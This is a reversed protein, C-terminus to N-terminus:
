RPPRDLLQSLDHWETETTQRGCQECVTLWKTYRGREAHRGYEIFATRQWHHDAWTECPM